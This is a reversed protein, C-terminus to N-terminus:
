TKEKRAEREERLWRLFLRRMRRRRRKRSMRDQRGGQRHLFRRYDSLQAPRAGLTTTEPILDFVARSTRLPSALALALCHCVLLLHLSSFQM